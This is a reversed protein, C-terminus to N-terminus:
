PITKETEITLISLLVKPPSTFNKFFVVTRDIYRGVTSDCHLIHMCSIFLLRTLKNINKKINIVIKVGCWIITSQWRKPRSSVM